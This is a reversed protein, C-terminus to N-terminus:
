SLDPRVARRKGGGVLLRFAGAALAALMAIGALVHPYGHSTFMAGALATAGSGLLANCFMMMASATNREEDPVSSMLLTNLGPSSMWQLASFALYLAVAIRPNSTGALCGLALATALQTAVIGNLLGLSRFVFPALLGICLQVVQVASFIVGIRSLSIHLERSLYVNGFPTFSALVATWLAMAPLFRLLFPNLRWRAKDQTAPENTTKPLRLRLVAFIGVAAVGCAGLLILRKVDVPRMVVGAHAFWQPLYGCLLGGLASTGVSISFILSFAAARTKETTLRAVAPPFCVAWLCMALGTAFALAIQTTEHLVLVRLVSLIPASVFCVLLLARIGFIKAFYGAPLTGAVSGLVMAGGILGMARENFHMDLLYLNFLFYYTAFGFDFFFAATFFIWFGRSLNKELVWAIPTKWFSAGGGSDSPPVEARLLNEV